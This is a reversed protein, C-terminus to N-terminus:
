DVEVNSSRYYEEIKSRNKDLWDRMKDADVSSEGWVLRFPYYWTEFAINAEHRQAAALTAYNKNDSTKYLIIESPNKVIM